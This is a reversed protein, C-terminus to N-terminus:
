TRALRWSACRHVSRDGTREVGLAFQANAKATDDVIAKVAPLRLEPFKRGLAVTLDYLQGSVILDQAAAIESATM